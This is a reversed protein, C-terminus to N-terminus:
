ATRGEVCARLSFKKPSPGVPGWLRVISPTLVSPSKLYTRAIEHMICFKNCVIMLKIPKLINSKETKKIHLRFCQFNFYLM